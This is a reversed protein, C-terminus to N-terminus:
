YNESKRLINFTIFFLIMDIGFVGFSIEVVTRLYLYGISLLSFCTFMQNSKFINNIFIMKISKFFLIFTILIIALVSIIGGCLMSYFYLSSVNEKLLHRDAQPGYGILKNIFFLDITRSWLEKRGTSSKLFLRQKKINSIIESEKNKKAKEVKDKDKDLKDGIEIETINSNTEIKKDTTLNNYTKILALTGQQINLHTVFPIIFIFLTYIIKKKFNFNSIKFFITFLFLILIFFLGIRNQLNFLSFALFSITIIYLITKIKEKKVFFLQIYLFLFLIITMRSLGSSRPVPQDFLLRNPSMSHINYFFNIVRREINIFKFFELYVDILFKITILAIILVFIKLILINFNKNDRVAYFYLFATLNCTLWYIQDQNNIHYSYGLPNILYGTLQGFLYILFLFYIWEFKLNKNIFLFYVFLIPMMVYPAVGRLTNITKSTSSFNIDIFPNNIASILYLFSGILFFKELLARSKQKKLM